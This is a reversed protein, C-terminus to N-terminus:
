SSHAPCISMEEGEDWHRPCRSSDHRLRTVHSAQPPSGAAARATGAPRPLLRGHASPIGCAGRPGGPSSSAGSHFTSSPHKQRQQAHLSGGSSASQGASSVVKPTTQGTSVLDTSATRPLGPSCSVAGPQQPWLARRLPPFVAHFRSPDPPCLCGHFSFDLTPSLGSSKVDSGAETKGRVVPWTVKRAVRHDIWDKTRRKDM